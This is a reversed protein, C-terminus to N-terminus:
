TKPRKTFFSYGATLLTTAAQTTGRMRDLSGQSRQNFSEVKYGYAERAANNRITLADLEGLYATDEQAVSASGENVDVNQGAYAARQAGIVRRVELRLNDEEIKGRNIADTAQFDTVKANTEAINQNIKGSKYSAYASHGAGAVALVAATMGM